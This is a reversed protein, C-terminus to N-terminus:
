PAAAEIWDFARGDCLEEARGVPVREPQAEPDALPALALPGLPPPPGASGGFPQEYTLAVEHPGAELPLTAFGQWLGAHGLQHRVSGADRSDVTASLRGLVLGGVWLRYTGTAPADVTITLTGPSDPLVQDGSLWSPPVTGDTLAAVVAPDRPLADLWAAGPTAALATVEACSPVAAVQPPAGLPLRALPPASDPPRQWAEWVPGAHILEFPSPPRSASPSARRVLTRYALLEADAVLDVEATSLHPFYGGQRDVVQRHRLDTAGEPDAARLYWRDAYTDFDLVLTPGEGAIETSLARLEALSARPAVWTQGIVALTSWVLGVALTVALATAPVQPRWSPSRLGVAAATAAAALVCPAVIALAKADVWPSGVLVAAVGGTLAIGVLAALEPRRRRLSLAVGATAGLATVFALAAVLVPRAPVSRFDGVPWLGAVQLLPVPGSLNGMETEDTLVGPTHQAFQLTVLAPLAAVLAVLVGLGLTRM